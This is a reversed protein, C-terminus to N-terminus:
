LSHKQSPSRVAHTEDVERGPFDVAFDDIVAGSQSALRGIQLPNKILRQALRAALHDGERGFSVPGKEEIEERDVDAANAAELRTEVKIGNGALDEIIGAALQNQAAHVPDHEDRIRLFFSHIGVELGNLVQLFVQALATVIKV